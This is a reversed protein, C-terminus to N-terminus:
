PGPDIPVPLGSPVSDPREAANSEDRLARNIFGEILFVDDQTFPMGSQELEHEVAHRLLRASGNHFYPETTFSNRLSPTRFKGVDEPSETFEARGLDVVGDDSPVRRNAFTESEFLPPTHCGDCGMEAFRFMGKVLDDDFAGVDGRLYGDYLANGSVFTREFAAIAAAVHDVTVSPDEPFAQAFLTVYGPVEAIRAAALDPDLKLEEDALLPMVAQKELSGARGDWLFTERFALNFLAQSNRRSVNPGERGPGTVPGAGHGVGVRIGDGMGWLESHCTACATEGDISLVPDYFLLRGLEIREEPVDTATAPLPPFEILPWPLTPAGTTVGGEGGQGGGGLGGGAGAVGGAGESAGCGITLAALALFCITHRVYAMM